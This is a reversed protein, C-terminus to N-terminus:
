TYRLKAEISRGDTNPALTGLDWCGRPRLLCQADLALQREFVQLYVSGALLEVVLSGSSLVPFQQWFGQKHASYHVANLVMSLVKHGSDCLVQTPPVEIHDHSANVHVSGHDYM